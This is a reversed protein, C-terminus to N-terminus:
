AALELQSRLKFRLSAFGCLDLAFLAATEKKPLPDIGKSGFTADERRQAEGL